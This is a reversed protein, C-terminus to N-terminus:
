LDVERPLSKDRLDDGLDFGWLPSDMLVDALSRPQTKPKPPRLSLVLVGKGEGLDVEQPSTQTADIIEPLRRTVDALAWRM